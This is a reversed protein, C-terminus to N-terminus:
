CAVKHEHEEEHGPQDREIQERRAMNRLESARERLMQKKEAEVFRKLVQKMLPQYGLGNLQAIDKLDEILGKQMRISIMQLELSNDISEGNNVSKKAHEEDAGLERSDWQEISSEDILEGVNSM